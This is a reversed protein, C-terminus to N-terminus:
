GGSTPPPTSSGSGSGGTKATSLQSNITTFVTKVKSATAILVGIAVVSIFGLVLSYEVLTQGRKTRLKRARSQLSSLNLAIM